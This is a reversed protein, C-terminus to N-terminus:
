CKKTKGSREKPTYFTTNDSNKLKYIHEGFGVSSEREKGFKSKTGLARPSNSPISQDLNEKNVDFLSERILIELYM